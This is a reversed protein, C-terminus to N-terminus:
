VPLWDVPASNDTCYLKGKFEYVEATYVEHAFYRGGALQILSKFDASPKIWLPLNYGTNEDDFDQLQITCDIVGRGDCLPCDMDVFHYYDDYTPFENTVQGDGDCHPCRVELDHHEPSHQKVVLVERPSRHTPRNSLLATLMNSYNYDLARVNNKHRAVIESVTLPFGVLEEMYQQQEVYQMSFYWIDLDEDSKINKLPALMDTITLRM